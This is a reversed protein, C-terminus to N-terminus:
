SIMEPPMEPYYGAEAQKSHFIGWFLEVIEPTTLPYATLGCRKLGLSLFEMRQWLQSKQVKFEEENLTATMAGKLKKTTGEVEIASYPIVIYFRKTMIIGKALLSQIFKLYEATQIKLLENKQEQELKKLQDLYGTINVRRSQVIVQCHFDLSNLFDQFQSIIAEQEEASKLGFNLSSVIMIGRLANGKLIVVGEKIEKIKLFTQTAVAM